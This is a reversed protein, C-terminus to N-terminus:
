LSHVSLVLAFRFIAVYNRRGRESDPTPAFLPYVMTRDKCKVLRVNKTEVIVAVYV